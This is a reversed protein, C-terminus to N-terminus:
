GAVNDSICHRYDRRGALAGLMGGIVLMMAGGGFAAQYGFRDYLVGGGAAGLTIAMQIVAVMLGGGAEADDPLVRALWTWWAVPLATGLCGWAALLLGIAIPMRGLAILGVAIVAMLVPLVLLTGRLSHAVWRGILANGVMGAVGLGLLILLLTSIDVRTVHELFPRFYTFAAFQGMFYAGMAAMGIAVRPKFLVGLTGPAEEEHAAPLSPLSFYKWAFTLAAMPVVAFFAGRWGIYQGLFSGLPAAITTALANGGNVIALARPVDPAPVLRMVTAASMSWFGGIVVGIMARGVMLVAFNPAASVVIGSAAMLATLGMLLHRRDIGASMRVICLSTLVAFLGSIAIAQGATGETLHLDRAIPTLLSVPMFESAILTSVCLTLAMVAGWAPAAEEAPISLSPM